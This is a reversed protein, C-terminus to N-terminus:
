WTPKEDVDMAVPGWRYSSETYMLLLVEYRTRRLRFVVISSLFSCGKHCKKGTYVSGTMQSTPAPRKAGDEKKRTTERREPAEYCGKSHFRTHGCPLVGRM